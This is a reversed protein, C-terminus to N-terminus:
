FSGALTVCNADNFHAACYPTLCNTLATEKSSCSNACVTAPTGLCSEYAGYQSTCNAPGNVAAIAACFNACNGKISTCNGAQAARCLSGCDGGSSSGSSSSSSCAAVGGLALAGALVTVVGLGLLHGLM